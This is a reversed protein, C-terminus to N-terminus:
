PQAGLVFWAGDAQHEVGILSPEAEAQALWTASARPALAHAIEIVRDAIEFADSGPRPEAAQAGRASLTNLLLNRAHASTAWINLVRSPQGTRLSTFAGGALFFHAGSDLGLTAAIERRALEIVDGEAFSCLPAARVAQQERYATHVGLDDAWFFAGELYWPWDEVSLPQGLLRAATATVLSDHTVFVHLGPREAAAALMHQVLARAAEDPRAMGPLAASQTVLHHMVGEHGLAEWNSWARQGDLVFIGPDGLLRDPIINLAAGAGAALAAATQMCRALPSAHLTHLRGCLHAGLAQALHRGVDTIPLDYGVEDPPLKERVSHRLLLAVARDAPVRALQALTSAPIERQQDNM